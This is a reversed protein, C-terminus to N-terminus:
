ALVPPARPSQPRDRLPRLASPTEAPFAAPVIVAFSTVLRDLAAPQTSRPEDEDDELALPVKAAKLGWVRAPARVIGRESAAAADGLGVPHNGAAPSTTTAGALSVVGALALLASLMACRLRRGTLISITPDKRRAPAM